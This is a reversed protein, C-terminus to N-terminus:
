SNLALEALKLAGEKSKITCMFGSRHCFLSGPIGTASELETGIKSRWSEPLPKRSASSAVEKRICVIQWNGVDARYLLAYMPEPFNILTGAVLERGFNYKEDIVIVRKDSVSQYMEIVLKRGEEIDKTVKIVRELIGIAWDVCKIFRNDWDGEEKWTARELNVISNVDFPLLDDILPKIFDKGNDLADVPQVLFGDIQEKNSNSGSVLEGFKEWVLGFSAYPIANKREGAGGMQHHDFRNKEKDYVNGVDVVYDGQAIISEDRTRLIKCNKKELAILLTATAFVDDTHFKANHTVIKKM